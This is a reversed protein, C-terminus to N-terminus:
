NRPCEGGTVDIIWSRVSGPPDNGLVMAWVGSLSTGTHCFFNGYSTAGWVEWRGQVNVALPGGSDGQCGGSYQEDGFTDSTCTQNLGWLTPSGTAQPVLSACTEMPLIDVTAQLM